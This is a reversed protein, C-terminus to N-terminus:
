QIRIKTGLNNLQLMFPQDNVIGDYIIPPVQGYDSANSISIKADTNDNNRDELIALYTWLTADRPFQQLSNLLFQKDEAPNGYVLTLTALDEYISVDNGYSL